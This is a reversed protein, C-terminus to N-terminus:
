PAGPDAAVAQEVMPALEPNIQVAKLFNQQAAEHQGLGPQAVGLNFYAEEPFQYGLELMAQFEAIAEGYQKEKLLLPALNQHSLLYTPNLRIAEHYRAIAEETKGQRAALTAVNNQARANAPERRVVEHWLAEESRYFSNERITFGLLVAGAIVPPLM